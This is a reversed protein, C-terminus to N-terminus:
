YALNKLTLLTPELLREAPRAARDLDGISLSNQARASYHLRTGIGHLSTPRAPREADWTGRVLCAVGAKRFAFSTGDTGDAGYAPMEMWAQASFRQQLRLAADGTAKARAFSGSIALGCGFVPAPLTEDRFTGTRRRISVGPIKAVSTYAVDCAARVGNSFSRPRKQQAARASSNPVFLLGFLSAALSFRCCVM